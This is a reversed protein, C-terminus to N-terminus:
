FGCEERFLVEKRPSLIEKIPTDAKQPTLCRAQPGSVAQLFWCKFITGLHLNPHPIDWNKM